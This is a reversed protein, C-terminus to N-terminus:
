ASYSAVAADVDAFVKIIGTFGALTLVREVQPQLGAIRLDGGGRRSEKVAALLSRLGASSTYNVHSFDAVLRVRGEAIPPAFTASLQDANLSDVSGTIKIITTDDRQTLTVEM